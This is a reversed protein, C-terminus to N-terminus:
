DLLLRGRAAADDKFQVRLFAHYETLWTKLADVDAVRRATAVPAAKIAADQALNAAVLRDLAAGLAELKAATVGRRQLKELYVPNTQGNTVFNRANPIFKDLDLRSAGKSAWRM